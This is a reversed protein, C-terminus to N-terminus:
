GRATTRGRHDSQTLRERENPAVGTQQLYRDYYIAWEDQVDRHSYAPGIGSGSTSSRTRLCPPLSATGTRPSLPPPVVPTQAAAHATLALLVAALATLRMRGGLSNLNPDQWQREAVDIMSPNGSALCLRRDVGM